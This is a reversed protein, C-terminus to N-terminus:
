SIRITFESDTEARAQLAMYISMCYLEIILISMHAIISCPCFFVRQTNALASLVQRRLQKHLTFVSTTLRFSSMAHM